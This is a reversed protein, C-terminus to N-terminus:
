KQERVSQMLATASDFNEKDASTMLKEVVDTQSALVEGGLAVVVRAALIAPKGDM